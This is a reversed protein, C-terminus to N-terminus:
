SCREFLSIFAGGFITKQLALGRATLIEPSRMGTQAVIWVVLHRCSPQRRVGDGNNSKKVESDYTMFGEPTLLTIRSRDCGWRHRRSLNLSQWSLFCCQHLHTNLRLRIPHPRSVSGVSLVSAATDWVSDTSQLSLERLLVVKYKYLIIQM